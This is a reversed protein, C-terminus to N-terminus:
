REFGLPISGAVRRSVDSAQGAITQLRHAAAREIHPPISWGFGTRGNVRVSTRGAVDELGAIDSM